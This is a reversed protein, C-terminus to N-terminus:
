SILPETKFGRGELETILAAQQQEGTVEVIVRYKLGTTMTQKGAEENGLSGIDFGKIEGFRFASFEEDGVDDRIEALLDRLGDTFQGSIAQNNATVNAAKEKSEPWDVVRISFARKGKRLEWTDPEDGVLKYGARQLQQVRQHGAVLHGTRQNWVIGSLDGFEELSKALGAANEPKITRPNYPAPRLDEITELTRPKAAM